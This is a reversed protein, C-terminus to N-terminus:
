ALVRRIVKCQEKIKAKYQDFPMGEPRANIIPANGFEKGFIAQAMTAPQKKKNEM